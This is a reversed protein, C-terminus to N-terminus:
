PSGKGTDEMGNPREIRGVWGMNPAFRFHKGQLVDSITAMGNLNSVIKAREVEKLNLGLEGLSLAERVLPVLNYDFGMLTCAVIDVPVPNLGAILVGCNQPDPCLPGNGEGAVIGDVISFLSRQQRNTLNGNKDCYLVIRNLDLITRWLTDNGYWQGEFFEDPLQKVRSSAWVIKTLVHLPVKMPSDTMSTLDSLKSLAKKRISKHQYEDGGEEKSGACYHPLCEKSGSIGILNKLSLTVGTRRHTKLKSINFIADAKLVSNPLVYQHRETNHHKAMERHDFGAIRFREHKFSIEDLFSRAGLDVTTYGLPDGLNEVRKGLLGFYGKVRKESRLDALQFNVQSHKGYWALLEDVQTIRVIKSFDASVMPADGVVITGNDQLAILIYDIVARLVSSHVIMSFVDKNKAHFHLTWNPKVLVRMGPKIIKGFPNWEKTNFNRHDLGMAALTGRIASYVANSPETGSFQCEPYSEPPHFPARNAYQTTGCDWIAVPAKVM